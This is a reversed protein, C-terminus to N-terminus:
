VVRTVRHRDNRFNHQRYSFTQLFFVFVCTNRANHEYFTSIIVNASKSDIRSDQNHRSCCLCQKWKKSKEGNKLLISIKRMLPFSILNLSQNCRAARGTCFISVRELSYRISVYWHGTNQRMLMHLIHLLYLLHKRYWHWDCCIM